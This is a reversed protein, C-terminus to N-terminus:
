LIYYKGSHNISLKNLCLYRTADVLHDNVKVPTNLVDGNKDTAWKYGRFEKIANLSDKTIHLKYRRMIDIGLHIGAGKKAPKINFGQRYIEEITKPEASDGIIESQRDIRFERLKNALDTNTLRKEYLMEKIYLNDDSQYVAVLASPSNTFGFDLGYGILRGQVEDVLEFKRFIMTQVSGIEGLGYVQWYDPDLDRLREIEAVTDEDLFPNAKYTSKIFTCDDRVIVKDYIWSYPDSPNYDLYIKETTRLILQQWDEYTFENAENLWLYNRKRGRIKQPQDVSIFELLNGNLQYSLESKNHNEESYLDLEKLIQLMDRYATAKLAPLTKRCITYTKGTDELCKVIFLQALSYSKSSRTGGQLCTIRTDSKYAKHFVNTTKIKAQTM